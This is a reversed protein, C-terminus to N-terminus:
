THCVEPPESYYHGNRSSTHQIQITSGLPQTKVTTQTHNLRVSCVSIMLVATDYVFTGTKLIQQMLIVQSRHGKGTKARLTGLESDFVSLLINRCFCLPFPNICAIDEGCIFAALIPGILPDM